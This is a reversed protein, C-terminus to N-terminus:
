LFNRTRKTRSSPQNGSESKKKTITQRREQRKAPKAPAAPASQTNSPKALAPRSPNPAANMTRNPIDRRNFDRQGPRPLSSNENPQATNYYYGEFWWPTSFYYNWNYNNDFMTDEYIDPHADYVMSQQEHCSACDDMFSVDDSYYTDTSDTANHVTPHQFVTYCQSFLVFSFLFLVFFIRQLFTNTKM